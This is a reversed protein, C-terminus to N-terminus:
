VEIRLNSLKELQEALEQAHKEVAEKPWKELTDMYHATDFGVIWGGEDEPLLWGKEVWKDMSKYDSSYTLGGNCSVYDNIEDYHKGYLPHGEPIVAYGNGWGIDYFGPYKSRMDEMSKRLPSEVVFWRVKKDM